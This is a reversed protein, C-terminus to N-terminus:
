WFSFHGQLADSFEKMALFGLPLFWVGQPYNASEPVVRVLKRMEIVIDHRQSPPTKRGSAIELLDTQRTLRSIAESASFRENAVVDAKPNELFHTLAEPFWGIKIRLAAKVRRAPNRDLWARQSL